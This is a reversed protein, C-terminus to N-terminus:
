FSITIELDTSPSIVALGHTSIDVIDLKKEILENNVWCRINEGLYVLRRKENRKPLDLNESQNIVSSNKNKDNMVLKYLNSEAGGASLGTIINIIRM